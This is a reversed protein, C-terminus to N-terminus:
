GFVFGAVGFVVVAASVAVCLWLEPLVRTDVVSDNPAAPNYSVEIARGPQYDRM